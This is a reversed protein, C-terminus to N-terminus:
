YRKFTYDFNAGDYGKIRMTGNNVSIKAAFYSMGSPYVWIMNSSINYTGSSYFPRSAQSMSYGSSSFTITKNLMNNVGGNTSWSQTAKTCKWSGKIESSSVTGDFDDDDDGCSALGVSMMAMVLM